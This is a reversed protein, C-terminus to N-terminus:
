AATLYRHRWAWVEMPPQSGGFTGARQCAMQGRGVAAAASGRWPRRCRRKGGVEATGRKTMVGSLARARRLPGAPRGHGLLRRTQFLVLGTVQEGPRLTVNGLEEAKNAGWLRYRRGGAAVFAFDHPKAESLGRVGTAQVDVPLWV